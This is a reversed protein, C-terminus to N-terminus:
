VFAGERETREPRSKKNGAQKVRGFGYPAVVKKNASSFFFISM